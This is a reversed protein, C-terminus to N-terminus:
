NGAKKATKKAKKAATKAAKNAKKRKDDFRLYYEIQDFIDGDVPDISGVINANWDYKDYLGMIYEYPSFGPKNCAREFAKTIFYYREIYKEPNLFIDSSMEKIRILGLKKKETGFENIKDYM